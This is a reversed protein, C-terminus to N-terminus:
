VQTLTKPPRDLRVPDNKASAFEIRPDIRPGANFVLASTPARDVVAIFQHHLPCCQDCCGAPGHQHSGHSPLADRSPNDAIISEGNFAHLTHAHLLPTIGVVQAFIFLGLLWRRVYRANALSTMERDGLELQSTTHRIGFRYALGDSV